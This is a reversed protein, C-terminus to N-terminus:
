QRRLLQTNNNNHTSLRALHCPSLRGYDVRVSECSRERERERERERDKKGDVGTPAILGCGSVVM